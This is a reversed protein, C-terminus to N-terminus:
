NKHVANIKHLAVKSDVVKRTLSLSKPYSFNESVNRAFGMVNLARHVETVGRHRQPSAPRVRCEVARPKLERKNM